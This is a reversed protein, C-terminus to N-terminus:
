SYMVLGRLKRSKKVTMFHTQYGKYTRKRVSIVSKWVRECLEVLSIGVRDYVQPRFFTGRNPPNWGTYAMISLVGVGM